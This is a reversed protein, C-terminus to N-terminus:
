VALEQGSNGVILTWTSIYKKTRPPRQYKSTQILTLPTLPKRKGVKRQRQLSFYTGGRVPADGARWRSNASALSLAFVVVFLAAACCFSCSWFRRALARLFLLFMDGYGWQVFHLVVVM